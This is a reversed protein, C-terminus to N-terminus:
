CRLTSDRCVVTVNCRGTVDPAFHARDCSLVVIVQLDIDVVVFIISLYPFPSTASYSAPYEVHSSKNDGIRNRRSM